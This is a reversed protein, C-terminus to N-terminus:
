SLGHFQMEFKGYRASNHAVCIQNYFCPRLLFMLLKDLVPLKKVEEDNCLDETERDQGISHKHDNQNFSSPFLNSSSRIIPDKKHGKKRMKTRPIKTNHIAACYYDEKPCVYFNKEIKMDLPSAM